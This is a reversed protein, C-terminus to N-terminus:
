SHGINRAKKRHEIKEEKREIVMRELHQMLDITAKILDWNVASAVWVKNETILRGNLSYKNSAAQSNYKTVHLTFLMNADNPSSKSALNPGTALTMPRPNEM